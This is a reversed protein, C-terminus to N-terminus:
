YFWLKAADFLFKIGFLLLVAGCVALIGKQIKDGFLGAGRHTYYGGVSLISLWVLDCLWHVIAFLVLALLGLEKADTALKLGVTAWWFLFYPNTASLLIGTVIPGKNFVQDTPAQYRAIQRLMDGGMWLLFGGGFIGIAVRVPNMKFVLGLGLMLLFILPMEVIGHGVSILTGALPSRTGKAFTAATVVGPAMVGSLSIVVASILFKLLENM